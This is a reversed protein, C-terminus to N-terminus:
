SHDYPCPHHDTNGQLTPPLSDQPSQKSAVYTTCPFTVNEITDTRRNVLSSLTPAGGGGALYTPLRGNAMGQGEGLLVLSFVTFPGTLFFAGGEGSLGPRAHDGLRSNDPLLFLQCPNRDTNSRLTFPLSDPKKQKKIHFPRFLDCIKEGVLFQLLLTHLTVNFNQYYYATTVSVRCCM